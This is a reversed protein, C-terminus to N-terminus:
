PLEVHARWGSPDGATEEALAFLVDAVATPSTPTGEELNGRVTVTAVHIGEPKLDAAMALTLNRIAAKQVGLSAFAPFPHDAVGSGTVLITGTHQDLLTPLAAQVATLLGATGVALDALLQAATLERASAERVASPNFHLVDVRGTHEAMRRIANGLAEADAIDAAAWGADAGAASVEEALTRVTEERRSVLGVDYGARAFRLASARGLGPGAGIVLAIPKSV